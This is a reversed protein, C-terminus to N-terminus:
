YNREEVMAVNPAPRPAKSMAMAILKAKLSEAQREGSPPAVLASSKTRPPAAAAQTAVSHGIPSTDAGADEERVSSGTQTAASAVNSLTPAATTDGLSTSMRMAACSEEVGTCSRAKTAGAAIGFIFGSREEAGTVRTIM